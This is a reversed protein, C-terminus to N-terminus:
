YRIIIELLIYISDNNLLLRALIYGILNSYLYLVLISISNQLIMRLDLWVKDQCELQIHLIDTNTKKLSNIVKCNLNGVIM